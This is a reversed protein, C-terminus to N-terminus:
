HDFQEPHKEATTLTDHLSHLLSKLAAHHQIGLRAAIGDRFSCVFTDAEELVALGRNTLGVYSDRGSQGAWSQVLKREELNKLLAHMSQRTIFCRRALEAHRLKGHENVRALVEHERESLSLHHLLRTIARRYEHHVKAMLAFVAHQERIVAEDAADGYRM